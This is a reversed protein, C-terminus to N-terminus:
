QKVNRQDIEAEAALWDEIEHGPEFGRKMARFYAAEEIMAQRSRPPAVTQVFRLPDFVPPSNLPMCTLQCPHRKQGPVRGDLEAGSYRM